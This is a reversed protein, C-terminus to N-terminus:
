EPRPGFFDNLIDELEEETHGFTNHEEPHLVADRAMLIHEEETWESKPITKLEEISRTVAPTTEEAPKSPTINAPEETPKAPIEGTPKTEETPPTTPTDEFFEELNNNIIEQNDPTSMPESPDTGALSEEIVPMVSEIHLTENTAIDKNDTVINIFCPSDGEDYVEVEYGLYREIAPLSMSIGNAGVSIMDEYNNLVISKEEVGDVGSYKLTLIGNDVLFAIKLDGAATYLTLTSDDSSFQGRNYSSIISTVDLLTFRDYTYGTTINNLYVEYLESSVEPETDNMVRDTYNKPQTYGGVDLATEFEDTSAVINFYHLLGTAEERLGKFLVDPALKGDALYMPTRGSIIYENGNSDTRIPMGEIDFFHTGTLAIADTVTAALSNSQMETIDTNEYWYQYKISFADVDGSEILGPTLEDVMSSTLETTISSSSAGSNKIDAPEQKACGVFITTALASVITLTITRRVNDKLSLM